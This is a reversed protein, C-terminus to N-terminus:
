GKNYKNKLTKYYSIVNESYGTEAVNHKLVYTLGYNYSSLAQQKNGFFKLLYKLYIVSYTINVYPNKLSNCYVGYKDQIIRATAPEIQAIGVAGTDSVEQYRFDSEQKILSFMLFPSVKYKDCIKIFNGVFRKDSIGELNKWKERKLASLLVSERTRKVVATKKAIVAGNLKIIRANSIIVGVFFTIVIVTIQRIIKKLKM